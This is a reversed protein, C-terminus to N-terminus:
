KDRIEEAIKMLTENERKLTAIEGDLQPVKVEALWEAFAYGEGGRLEYEDFLKHFRTIKQRESM